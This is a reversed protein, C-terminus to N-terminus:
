VGYVYRLVFRNNEYKLGAVEYVNKNAEYGIIKTNHFGLMKRGYGVMDSGGTLSISYTEWPHDIIFPRPVFFSNWWWDGPSETNTGSTASFVLVIGHPQSSVPETFVAEETNTMWYSGSWLVNMRSYKTLDGQGNVSIRNCHLDAWDKTVRFYNSGCVMQAFLTSWLETGYEDKYEQIPGVGGNTRSEYKDFFTIINERIEFVKVGDLYNNINASNVQGLNSTIASLTDAEVYEGNIYLKGDRMFIGQIAGNNTLKNFVQDQTLFGVPNKSNQLAENAVTDDTYGDKKEWDYSNFYGTTRTTVCTKIESGNFWLDGKYYPITPKDIFVQAKKQALKSAEEADKDKLDQWSSGNWRKTRKNTTDYWIDGLHKEREQTNWSISPDSSQSYTQIKGDVQKELDAVLNDVYTDDTYKNLKRWDAKNFYSGKARETMCTLVDTGDMWLDGVDYPPVPQTVFTRRKGDALDKADQAEQMAKTIDTDKLLVWKWIGIDEMFRYAYGKSKWFFRDGIHKRREENTTWKSAPLNYLTPEYDYYWDEVQGDVQKQLEEMGKTVTNAYDTLKGDAYDKADTVSDTIAQGLPKGGIQITDGSIIVEKTNMNVSFVINGRADKVTIAGTNIYDANIGITYLIRAILDGTLFLGYPYTKGGDNSIGIAEATVKIINKSESLKPKDHIYTITSGDLQPEETVYMGSANSLTQNLKDMMEQIQQKHMGIDGVSGEIQEVRNNLSESNDKDQEVLGKFTKGVVLKDAKPNALNLSMKKILFLQNLSHKNSVVKCFTGVEFASIMKDTNSLDVASIEISQKLLISDALVENAKRLLNDAVTVDDWTVVKFIWGYRNVADQNFVYDKGGNISAITLRENTEVMQGNEDQKKLKAGLPIIATAIDSGKVKETLDIINKCLEIDQYSQKEFDALYDIYVGDDEYRFNLYGGHTKILKQFISEYTSLYQSDSRNIYNNKDTVTIRGMKFQKDAGVQSNHADLFQKFLAPINGKFEYPRQTSDLLFALQGECVVQKANKLGKEDDLIRGRFIVKDDKLVKIISKLKKLSNYEPHNPLITFTLSGTKNIELDLKPNKVKLEEIRTDYILKDDLFIQYM